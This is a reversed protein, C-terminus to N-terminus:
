ELSALILDALEPRVGLPELVRVHVGPHAAAAAEVLAPIDEAMHRGPVLFFPHVAIEDAGAEVCAAVAEALSPSALEMHAVRVDLGARRERVAAAIKELHEHAESKRSGHDVLILALSV